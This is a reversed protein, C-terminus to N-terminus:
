AAVAMIFESTIVASRIGATTTQDTNIFISHSSDSLISGRTAEAMLPEILLSRRWYIIIYDTSIHIPLARSAPKLRM